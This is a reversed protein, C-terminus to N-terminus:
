TLDVFSNTCSMTVGVAPTWLFMGEKESCICPLISLGAWQQARSQGAAPQPICPILISKNIGMMQQNNKTPIFIDQSCCPSFLMLM